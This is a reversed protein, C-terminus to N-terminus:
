EEVLRAVFEPDHGVVIQREPAWWTAKEEVTSTAEDWHPQYLRAYKLELYSAVDKPLKNGDLREIEERRGTIQGSVEHTEHRRREIVWVRM